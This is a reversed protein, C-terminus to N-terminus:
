EDVPLVSFTCSNYSSGLIVDFDVERNPDPEIRVNEPRINLIDAIESRSSGKTQGTYDILITDAYDTMEAAGAAFANLGDWGLRGAAVRDWSANTTGNFVRIQAGELLIQSDTPPQYFDELLPRLTEYVPLQVYDGSPTQWPTTHYTRIFAFNEIMGPSLNLALPALGVIDEFRLNTEVIQSALNWLEPLNAINSTLQGTDLAKRWAARLIQQQRRGRDFDSSNDRARAYWLAEAGNLTYEGVDLVYDGEEGVRRAAAPVEAGILPLNQIACDVAVDVGGVLDIAETFGTLNILAYYHVNIGFNYLITQRILEFPGDNWGGSEGRAFALNLRQMGWAPIYVFVDRPLSLMAVSGTTRNISVVIMTDTRRFNDGTIEDDSGLLLINMLDYGQRPIPELRPPIATVDVQGPDPDGLFLVTPLPPPTGVEVQPAATASPLPTSTAAPLNTATPLPTPTDTPIPTASAALTPSVEAETEGSGGEPTNTVFVLDPLVPTNTAFDLLLPTSTVTAAQAIVVPTATLTPTATPASTFTATATPSTTATNTPSATWTATVTHTATPSATITPTYTTVTAAIATATAPFSERNQEFRVQDNVRQAVSQVVGAGTWFIALILLLPVFRFVLFSLFRRFRSPRNATM